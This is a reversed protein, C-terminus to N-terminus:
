HIFAGFTDVRTFGHGIKRRLRCQCAIPVRIFGEEFAGFNGEVRVAAPQFEFLTVCESSFIKNDIGHCNGRMTNACEVFTASFQRHEDQQIEVRTGNQEHGFEPRHDTRIIMTCVHEHGPLTRVSEVSRKKGEMGVDDRRNPMYQKGLNNPMYQKGWNADWRKDWGFQSDEGELTSMGVAWEREESTRSSISPLFRLSTARLPSYRTLVFYYASTLPPFLVLSLLIFPSLPPLPFANMSPPLSPFFGDEACYGCTEPCQRRMVERYSDDECLYKLRPCDSARNPMKRDSCETLPSVKVTGDGEQVSANAKDDLYEEAEEGEPSGEKDCFGCTKPCQERMLQRYHRKGCLKRKGVCKSRSPETEGSDLADRCNPDNPQPPIRQGKGNRNNATTACCGGICLFPVDCSLDSPNCPGGRRATNNNDCQQTGFGRDFDLQFQDPDTSPRLCVGERSNTGGVFCEEDNTCQNQSGFQASCVTYTGIRQSARCQGGKCLFMSRCESHKYCKEDERKRSFNIFTGCTGGTPSTPDRRCGSGECVSDDARSPDCHPPPCGFDGSCATVKDPCLNFVCPWSLDSQQQACFLEFVVFDLLLFARYLRM